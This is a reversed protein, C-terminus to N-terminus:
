AVAAWCRWSALLTAAAQWRTAVITSSPSWLSCPAPHRSATPASISRIMVSCVRQSCAACAFARMAIRRLCIATHATFEGASVRAAVVLWIECALYRSITMEVVRSIRVYLSCRGLPTDAGAAVEKQAFDVVPASGGGAAVLALLVDLILLGPSFSSCPGLSWACMACCCHLGGLRPM